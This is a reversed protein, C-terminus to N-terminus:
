HKRRNLAADTINRIHESVRKDEHQIHDVLWRAMIRNVDDSLEDSSGNEEFRRVLERVKVKFEEHKQKHMYYAPYGYELQLAEEDTFHRIAYNILFMITDYLEAKDRGEECFRVLESVREFIKQHQMDVMANGTLLSDDWALGHELEHVNKMKM